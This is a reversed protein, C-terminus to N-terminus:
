KLLELMYDTAEKSKMMSLRSVIEKKMGPDTEGRALDVLAKANGQMSLTSVIQKKVGPDKDAKYIQVLM